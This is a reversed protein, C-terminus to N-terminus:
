DQQALAPHRYRPSTLISVQSQRGQPQVPEALPTTATAPAPNDILMLAEPRLATPTNPDTRSMLTQVTSEKCCLTRISNSPAQYKVYFGHCEGMCSMAASPMLNCHVETHSRISQGSSDLSTHVISALSCTLNHSAYRKFASTTGGLSTTAACLSSLPCIHHPSHVSARAQGLHPWAPLLM